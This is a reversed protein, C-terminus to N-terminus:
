GSVKNICPIELVIENDSIDLVILNKHSLTKIKYEELAEKKEFKINLCIIYCKQKDIIIMAGMKIQVSINIFSSNKLSTFIERVIICFNNQHIFFLPIDYDTTITLNKNTNNIEINASLLMNFDSKTYGLLQTNKIPAPPKKYLKLHLEEDNEYIIMFGYFSDDGYNTDIYNISKGYNKPAYSLSLAFLKKAIHIGSILQATKNAYIVKGDNNFVFIPNIDNDQILKINPHM